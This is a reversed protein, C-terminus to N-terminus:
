PLSGYYSAINANINEPPLGLFIFGFFEPCVELDPPGFESVKPLWDFVQIQEARPMDLRATPMNTKPASCESRKNASQLM